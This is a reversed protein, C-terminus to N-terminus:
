REWWYSCLRLTSVQLIAVVQSFSKVICRESVASTVHVALVPVSKFPLSSTGTMSLMVRAHSDCPLSLPWPGMHAEVEHPASSALNASNKCSSDGRAFCAHDRSCQVPLGRGSFRDFLGRNAHALALCHLPEWAKGLRALGSGEANDM